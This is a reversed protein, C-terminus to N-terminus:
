GVREGLHPSVWVHPRGSMAVHGRASIGGPVDRATLDTEGRQLAAYIVKAEDPALKELRQAYTEVGDASKGMANRIANMDLRGKETFAGADRLLNVILHGRALHNMDRDFRAGLGPTRVDLQKVMQDRAQERMARATAGDLGRALQDKVWGGDSLKTLWDLAKDFSMASEGHLGRLATVEILDAGPRIPSTGGPQGPKRGVLADDIGRVMKKRFETMANLGRRRIGIADLDGKTSLGGFM